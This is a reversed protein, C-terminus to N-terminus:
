RDGMILWAGSFSFMSCPSMFLDDLHVFSYTGKEGSVRGFFSFGIVGSSNAFFISHNVGCSFSVGFVICVCSAICPFGV